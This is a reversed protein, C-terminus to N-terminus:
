PIKPGRSLRRLVSVERLADTEKDAEPLTSTNDSGAVASIVGFGEKPFGNLKM